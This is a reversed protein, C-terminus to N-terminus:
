AKLAGRVFDVLERFSPCKAQVKAVNLHPAVRVNFTASAYKPRSGKGRSQNKLWEKPNALREPSRVEAIVLSPIVTAIAQEDAIMWAELEQVPVVIAHDYRKVDLQGAKLAARISGRVAEPEKGDSDLCIIFWSPEQGWAKTQRAAGNLLNGSGGFGKGKVRINSRGAILRILATLVEVDSDDEALVAFM